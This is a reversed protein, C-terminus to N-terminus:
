GVPLYGTGDLSGDGKLFQGSNGGTVIFKSARLFGNTDIFVGTSGGLGDSIQKESGTIVDNDILKLLAKYTEAVLKGTLTAM